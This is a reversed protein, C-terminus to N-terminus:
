HLLLKKYCNGPSILQQLIKFTLGIFKKFLVFLTNYGSGKEPFAMNGWQWALFNLRIIEYCNYWLNHFTTNILSIYKYSHFPSLSIALCGLSQLKCPVIFVTELFFIPLRNKALIYLFQLANVGQDKLSWCCKSQQNFKWGGAVNHSLLPLCLLHNHKM